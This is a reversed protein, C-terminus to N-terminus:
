LGRATRPNEVSCWPGMEFAYKQISCEVKDGVTKYPIYSVVGWAQLLPTETYFLVKFTQGDYKEM